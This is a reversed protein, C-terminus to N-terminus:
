PKIEAHARSVPTTRCAMDILAATDLILAVRGNGLICAGAVGAVNRYNEAVSKIVVDEEGIVRDVTLGLERGQQGFVLLTTEDSSFRAQPVRNDAWSLIEALQVASIVRDRVRATWRGHVTAFARSPLSVIEVVSELPMAFVEGESQVLLSPLIALTLPLKITIRTGMGPESELDVVGNLDEIKSRVIDMGMGRGSVETVKEATSLGSEWILQHIQSRTMQDLEAQTALGKEVAKRAIRPADLGRGDDTVQILISNGRHFANLTITGERPKGAAQRVGPLEIGHDAANRVMHILPDGLEDIMQKDLETKEGRIVLNIVKGNSRTIDRIVRKFRHFLPGIPLMRTDMVTQQIGDSVRDLQRITEFLDNVATRVHNLTEVERCASLATKLRDAIQAFRAKHIVLQGALNMLQDLRQIDVRLTEAPRAGSGDDDSTKAPAASGAAVPPEAATAAPSEPPRSPQAAPPTASAKSAEAPAPPAGLLPELAMQQIGAIRLKRRVYELGKDTVVGFGVADITEKEDLTEAPPTFYCVEGLNALKEYLLRAKLGVLLLGPQFIVTGVLTSEHDGSAHAVQDRLEAAIAAAPPPREPTQAAPCADPLPAQPTTAASSGQAALLAHALQNFQGSEPRGRKLGEVYQRLGDNCALLADTLSPTLPRGSEVLNQLLDEMLHALKAARNLGVSAASGKIRHVTVLLKELTAPKGGGEMALLTETFQDLSLETEDIFIGLYPSPLETEDRLDAFHDIQVLAHEAGTQSCQRREAGAAQLLRGIGEVVSQCEVPQAGPRRLADVLSVLRDVGRFMMEVVDGRIPLEGKRAADFVNEIKHTLNNIDRLGLMASLGKLSHAARFMDNLLEENCRRPGDGDLSRVWADLKLLREHLRDLLPESEDLFDGLLGDSCDDRAIAQPDSM